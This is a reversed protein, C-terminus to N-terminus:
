LCHTQLGSPLMSPLYGTLPTLGDVPVSERCTALTFYDSTACGVEHLVSKTQPNFNRSSNADLECPSDLDATSHLTLLLLTPEGERQEPMPLPSRLPALAGAGSRERAWAATKISLM